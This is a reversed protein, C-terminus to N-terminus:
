AIRYRGGDESLFGEGALERLMVATTEPDTGIIPGIEVATAEGASVLFRLIMARRQRPSGRFPSQRHYHASRLNPNPITKKLMVGYDMLAYHWERPNDADLVAEAIPLIERDGVRDRDVFFFHLLVRRINTEIFAAPIRFAFAAIERATAHGVGPFTELIRPDSPLEGGYEEIVLRAARHLSLARRNYGLGQWAALVDRLPASALTRFDPFAALFEGYKGIVREVQTQQLMMESVFIRYPDDTERWPLPRPNAHSHAYITERFGAITDHSLPQNM